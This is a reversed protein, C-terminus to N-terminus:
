CEESNKKTSLIDVHKRMKRMAHAIELSNTHAYLEDNGHSNGLTIDRFFCRRMNNSKKVDQMKTYRNAPNITTFVINKPDLVELPRLNHATFILQGKGDENMISLLEGLLYEFINADLEDVVLTIGVNNYTAIFVHLLSVIKKIGESEYKLPLKYEKDGNRHKRVLQVREGISGDEMLETGLSDIAIEMGPIIEIIVKNITEVVDKLVIQAKKSLTKPHDIPMGIRGAVRGTRFTFPLVADLSILGNERNSLVFLNWKGYRSLTRLIDAYDNHANTSNAQIDECFDKSFIFSRQEKACLIKQVLLKNNIAAAKGFLETRKTQPTFSCTEDNFDVSFIPNLRDRTQNEEDYASIKLTEFTNTNSFVFEYSTLFRREDDLEVCMECVINASDAGITINDDIIDKYSEGSLLQKLLSFAFVLTTKGSGNQGYIGTIDSQYEFGDDENSCPFVIKGHEVNRWNNLEISKIRVFM